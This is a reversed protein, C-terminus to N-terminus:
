SQFLTGQTSKTLSKWVKHPMKHHASFVLWYLPGRKSNVILPMEVSNQIGADALLGRWYNVLQLRVATAPRNEDISNKWGPAFEDLGEIKGILLSDLNRQQDGAAYNTLMDFHPIKAFPKLIDFPLSALSFPDFFGLHVGNRPLKSATAHALDVATGVQSSVPAGLAKLRKECAEVNEPDIDSIHLHTFPANGAVSKKWALVAGGDAFEKTDRFQVMGPGCFLDVYTQAPWEKRAYSTAVIYDGLYKYKERGWEGVVMARLGDPATVYKTKASM